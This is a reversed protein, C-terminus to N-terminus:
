AHIEEVGTINGDKDRKVRKEVVSPGSDPDTEVSRRLHRLCGGCLGTDSESPQDKCRWCTPPADREEIIEDVPDTEQYQIPWGNMDRVVRLARRPAGKKSRTRREAKRLERELQRNGELSVVLSAITRFLAADLEDKAAKAWEWYTRAANNAARVAPDVTGGRVEIRPPDEQPGPRPIRMHWGDQRYEVTM